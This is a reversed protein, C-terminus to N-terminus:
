APAFCTSSLISIELRFGFMFVFGPYSILGSLSTCFTHCCTFKSLIFLGFCFLQCTQFHLKFFYIFLYQHFFPSEFSVASPELLVILVLNELIVFSFEVLLDTCFVRPCVLFRFCFLKPTFCPFLFFMFSLQISLYCSFIALYELTSIRLSCCELFYCLRFRCTM